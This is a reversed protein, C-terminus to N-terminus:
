LHTVGSHKHSKNVNTFPIRSLSTLFMDIHMVFKIGNIYQFLNLVNNFIMYPHNDCKGFLLKIYLM